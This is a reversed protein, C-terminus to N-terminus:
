SEESFKEVRFPPSANLFKERHTTSFLVDIVYARGPILNSTHFKFFMGVDDSSVRTSNKLEDFPVLIENTSIDRIQYYVNRLVTGPSEVPLRSLKINPNTQDFITLRALVDMNDTYTEKIGHISVAYKKSGSRGSRQPMRVTVASGSLYTVSLDNSSWVPTFQVSGSQKLKTSLISDSSYLVFSSQYVGTEPISGVTHQSGSFKLEYVGGSVPTFLKLVLSNSGTIPTLGSGSVLNSLNGAVYNYLTLKCTSDFTLNQFDDEISDDFGVTMKPHKSVDYAQRSGFRKVFYSNTNDELSNDFSIRFGSDPLEGTLTASVIKTVDVVLDEEGTTFTQESKTNAISTSSTVYDGLTTNTCALGCGSVYWTSGLSATLWNCTDYDSYYTVNKGIGEDFSASLPFVSVTFNTPTTQGGYVDKLHIKCWFSPDNIDIKGESFLTKLDRLDFHILLRSLETNPLTGSLSAGYLKFLDLTGAAGVNSNYKRKGKIVKSTIYTDKDSKFTRFM